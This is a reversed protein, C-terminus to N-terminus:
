PTYGSRLSREIIHKLLASCDENVDRWTADFDGTYWPEAVDRPSGTWDILLSIKGQPDEQLDRPFVWRLNRLNNRDMLVVYDYYEYDRSTMQRDTKGSCDIGHANLM